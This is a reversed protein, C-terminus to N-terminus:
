SILNGDQDFKKLTMNGDKDMIVTQDNGYMYQKQDEISGDENWITYSAVKEGTNDIYTFEVDDISILAGTDADYQLSHEESAIPNKFDEVSIRSLNSGEYTFECISLLEKTEDSYGNTYRTLKKVRADEAKEYPYYEFVLYENGADGYIYSILGDDTYHVTQSYRESISSRKRMTLRGQHDFTFGGGGVEVRYGEETLYLSNGRVDQLIGAGNDRFISRGGSQEIWTYTGDQNDIIRDSYFGHMHDGFIGTSDDLSNYSLSMAAGRGGTEFLRLYLNGSFQNITGYVQETYVIDRNSSYYTNGMSRFLAWDTLNEAAYASIEPTSYANASIQGAVVTASMALAMTLATIRKGFRKM